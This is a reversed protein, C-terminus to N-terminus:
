NSSFNIIIMIIIMFFIIIMFLLLTIVNDGQSEGCGSFDFGCVACKSNAAITMIRTKIVDM